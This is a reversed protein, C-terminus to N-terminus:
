GERKLRWLTYGTLSVVLLPIVFYMMRVDVVRQQVFVPLYRLLADCLIMGVLMLRFRRSNMGGVLGYGLLAGSTTHFLIMFGRELLHWSFLDVNVALTALYCGEVIGFGAGCVAGIVALRNSRVKLLFAFALILGAKLLEQIIGATMAPFLGLFYPSGGAAIRPIFLHEVLYVQLPMQTVTVVLYVVGGAGLAVWAVAWRWGRGVYFVLAILGLVFYALFVPLRKLVNGTTPGTTSPGSAGTEFKRVVDLYAKLQQGPIEVKVLRKDPTFYFAQLQPHTYRVVFASDFVGSYVQKQVFLQITAEVYQKSMMQPVFLTDRITDGVKFDHMSLYLEHMDLLYIDAAFGNVDFQQQLDSSRGGQEVSGRLTDGDRKIELQAIQEGTKITLDCGLYGGNEGVYQRGEVNISVGSGQRSFDLGLRQEIIRAEIGDITTRGKVTSFLRGITSDKVIFTWMRLEGDPRYEDIISDGTFARQAVVSSTAVLLVASITLVTKM